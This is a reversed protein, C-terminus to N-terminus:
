WRKLVENAVVILVIMACLVGVFVGCMFVGIM